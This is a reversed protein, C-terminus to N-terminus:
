HWIIPKLTSQVSYRIKFVIQQGIRTIKAFEAINFMRKTLGALIQAVKFDMIHGIKTLRGLAIRM